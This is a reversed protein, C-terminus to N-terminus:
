VGGNCPAEKRGGDGIPSPPLQPESQHQPSEYQKQAWEVGDCGTAPRSAARPDAGPSRPRACQRLSVTLKSYGM